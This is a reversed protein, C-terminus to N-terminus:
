EEEYGIAHKDCIDTLNSYIEWGYHKDAFARIVEIMEDVTMKCTVYEIKPENELKVKTEM